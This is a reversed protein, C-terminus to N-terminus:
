MQNVKPGGHLDCAPFASCDLIEYSGNRLMRLTGDKAGVASFECRMSFACFHNLIVGATGRGRWLADAYTGNRLIGKIDALGLGICALCRVDGKGMCNPCEHESHVVSDDLTLVATGACMDCTQRGSGGCCSCLEHPGWERERGVLHQGARAAGRPLLACAAASLALRLFARRPRRESRPSGARVHTCAVAHMFAM